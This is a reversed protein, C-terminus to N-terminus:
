EDEVGENLRQKISALRETLETRRVRNTERDDVIARRSEALMSGRAEAELSRWGAREMEDNCRRIDHEVDDLASQLQAERRDLRTIEDEIASLSRM